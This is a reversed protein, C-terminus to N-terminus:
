ISTKISTKLKILKITVSKGASENQPLPINLLTYNNKPFYKSGKGEYNGSIIIKFNKITQTPDVVTITLNDNKNKELMVLGPTKSEIYEGKSFTNIRCSNHFVFQMISNDKLKVSQVDSQNAVITITPHQYYQILEKQSVSPLILYQYSSSTNISHNIWLSFIRGSVIESIYPDAIDNWDGSQTSGKLTTSMSKPFYYGISDHWVTNINEATMLTDDVTLSTNNQTFSIGGRQLHQNISTIIEKGSNNTIDTGLCVLKGKLYFWSKKAEISNRDLHFTSIGNSNHTLGGVFSNANRYTDNKIYKISDLLPATIGPIRNWDWFPFIDNYEDGRRMIMTSGDAIFHGKKNEKNTFETGILRPSSARISIYHNLNRYVSLDSRWFHKSQVNETISGPQLNKYIFKNYEQGFESDAQKLQQAAVFLTMAKGIQAKKFLQRGCASIDMYGRWIVWSEGNFVYNRLINIQKPTFALSTGGFVNAYYAMSSIFSLGYNGFQQQPGHQHFSYDPQIGESTTTYIESAITDRASKVLKLDNTLLAKMLVNGALWVKNQGTMRFGSNDLVELAGIKEDPTLEDEVFLFVLGLFRPVAIQNYWWNKCVPKARFWYNIGRHITVSVDKSQYFKSNTSIYARSLYLLNTVHNTPQWNSSSPDNYNINKWSGDAQQSSIITQLENDEQYTNWYLERLSLDTTNGKNSIKTALNHLEPNQFFPNRNIQWIQNKLTSILDNGSYASLTSSVICFIITLIRNM